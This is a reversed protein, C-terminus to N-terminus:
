DRKYRGMLYGEGIVHGKMREEVQRRNASAPLDLTNLDLAFVKFFYRHYGHGKPPCPGGYGTFGFDNLGQKFIGTKESKPIGERLSRIDPPIDYVIWHTFTGIPADPDDMILVFSKTGAPVESWSIPPSLDEGECTYKIPIVEGERFAQSEVKM